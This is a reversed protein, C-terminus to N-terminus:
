FAVYEVYIFVFIISWFSVDLLDLRIQVINVLLAWAYRQDNCRNDCCKFHKDRM